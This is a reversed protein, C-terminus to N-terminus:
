TVGPQGYGAQKRPIAHWKNFVKVVSEEKSLYEVQDELRAYFDRALRSGAPVLQCLRIRLQPRSIFTWDPTPAANGEDVDENSDTIKRRKGSSTTSSTTIVFKDM